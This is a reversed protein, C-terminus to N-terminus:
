RFRDDDLAERIDELDFEGRFVKLSDSGGPESVIMSIIDDFDIQPGTRWGTQTWWRRNRSWQLEDVLPDLGEDRLDEVQASGAWSDTGRPVVDLLSDLSRAWSM